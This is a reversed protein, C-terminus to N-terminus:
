RRRRDMWNSGSFSTMTPSSSAARRAMGSYRAGQFNGASYRWCDHDLERRRTTLYVVTATGYAKMSSTTLIKKEKGMERYLRLKAGGLLIRPAVRYTPQTCYFRSSSRSGASRPTVRHISCSLPTQWGDCQYDEREDPYRGLRGGQRLPRALASRMASRDGATARSGMARAPGETLARTATSTERSSGTSDAAM